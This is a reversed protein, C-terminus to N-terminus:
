SRNNISRDLEEYIVTQLKHKGRSDLHRYNDLLEIEDESYETYDKKGFLLYDSSVSFNKCITVIQELTPKSKNNKWDTLPSKRLGLMLGLQVGNIKNRDLLGKIRKTIDEMEQM